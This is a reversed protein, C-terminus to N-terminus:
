ANVEGRSVRGPIGGGFRFGGTQLGGEIIARFDTVAATFDNAAAQQTNAADSLAASVEAQIRAQDEEVGGLLTDVRSSVLRDAEDLLSLFGPALEERQGEDLLGFADSVFQNLKGAIEGIKAPDEATRLDTTLGAIQEQRLGFLDEPSLLSERIQDATNQFADKAAKEVQKLGLVLEAAVRQQIELAASLGTVSDRSREYNRSLDLTEDRVERYVKALNNEADLQEELRGVLGAVDLSALEDIMRAVAASEELQPLAEKLLAEVTTDINGAAARRVAAPVEEGLADFITKLRDGLLIAVEGESVRQGVKQRVGTGQLASSVSGIQDDSLFGAITDDIKAFNELIPKLTQFGVDDTGSADAGVGGLLSSATFRDEVAGGGTRLQINGNNQGGGILSGALGAALAIAIGAPGGVMGAQFLAAAGAGGLAGGLMGGKENGRDGLLKAIQGGALGGAIGGIALGGLGGSGIMGSIGSPAVPPGMAGPALVGSNGILSSFGGKILGPLKSLSALSSIGSFIGGLGGPAGAAGGAGGAAGAANAAQGFLQGAGPLGLGQAFNIMIPRTIAAHALEALLSKFTDKVSEAFDDLGEFASKWLDVFLGDVREIASKWAEEFATAATKTDEAVKNIEGRQRELDNILNRVAEAYQDNTILKQQLVSNLVRLGETRQEELDVLPLLKPKMQQWQRLLDRNLGKRKEEEEAADAMIKALAEEAAAMDGAAVSALYKAATNRRVEDTYAKLIGVDSDAKAGLAAIAATMSETAPISESFAKPVLDGFTKVLWDRAVGLEETIKYLATLVVERARIFATGLGQAAMAAGVPLFDLIGFLTEFAENAMKLSPTLFNLFLEGLKTLAVDVNGSFQKAVFASSETIKKLAEDTSGAGNEMAALMATFEAGDGSTLTLINKMAETSEFLIGMSEATGGTKEVVDQLFGSLGKSAVASASFELGLEKAYETAEQTPKLISSFAAAMGTVAQSTSIGSKTIASIAALTEEISVNMKEAIPAVMGISASLEGITTKGGKMAVFLADSVRGAESAEMRYANLISTLGDAATAVDTVGGVALKNAVELTTLAAATGKAGASIVQYLAKAQTTPAQAYASSLRLVSSSMLDLDKTQEPGLLTSVEAMAGNFAIAKATASVLAAGLAAFSAIPLLGRISSMAGGMARTSKTTKKLKKDLGGASKSVRDSSSVFEKAGSKALSSDIGAKVLYEQAM